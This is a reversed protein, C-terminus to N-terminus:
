GLNEAIAVGTHPPPFHSFNLIRKQLIWSSDVYHATLSLYGDIVISAWADSTLCIRSPCRLLEDRLRKQQTAYLKKIDSKSTNKCVLSAEPELYKCFNRVGEYEFFSFPLDHIVMAHTVMEQFTEQSFKPNRTAMVGNNSSIM